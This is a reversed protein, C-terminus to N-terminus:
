SALSVAWLWLVSLLIKIYTCYHDDQMNSCSYMSSYRSSGFFFIACSSTLILAGYFVGKIRPMFM